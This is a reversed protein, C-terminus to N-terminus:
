LTENCALEVRVPPAEMYPVQLQVFEDRFGDCKAVLQYKGPKLQIQKNQTKGVKGVGRVEILARGDSVIQVPVERNMQVLLQTLEAAQSRLSPSRPFSGKVEQLLSQARTKTTNDALAYPKAIMAALAKKQRIITEARQIGETLTADGSQLKKAQQWQRLAEQWNDQSEAAAAQRRATALDQQRQLEQVRSVLIKVESRTGYAAVVPQLRKKQWLLM